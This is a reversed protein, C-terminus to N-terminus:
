DTCFDIGSKLSGDFGQVYVSARYCGESQIASRENTRTPFGDRTSDNPRVAAHRAVTVSM